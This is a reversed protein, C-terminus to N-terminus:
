GAMGAESRGGNPSVVRTVIGVTQEPFVYDRMKEVTIDCAQSAGYMLTRCAAENTIGWVNNAFPVVTLSTPTAGAAGFNSVIFSRTEGMSPVFPHGLYSVRFTPQPEAPKVGQETAFGTLKSKEKGPKIGVNECAKNVSATVNLLEYELELNENEEGEFALLTSKLEKNSGAELKVECTEKKQTEAKFLCLSLLSASVSTEEKPQKLELECSSASAESKLETALADCLGWSKVKLVLDPGSTGPKKEHEILWQTPSSTSGENFCQFTAGGAELAIDQDKTEGTTSKGGSSSFEGSASATVLLTATVAIVGATTMAKTM